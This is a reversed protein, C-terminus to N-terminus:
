LVRDLLIRLARPAERRIRKECRSTCAVFVLDEGAAAAESDQTSVMGILAHEDDVPLFRISGEWPALQDREAVELGVRRKEEPELELGCWACRHSAEEMAAMRVDNQALPEEPALDIVTDTLEFEFWLDFLERTRPAPRTSEDESWAALEEAFIDECCDDLLEPTIDPTEVPPVLYGTRPLEETYPVPETGAEAQQNAWDAYAHKRTITVASRHLM